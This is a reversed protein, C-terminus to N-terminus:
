ESIMKLVNNFIHVKNRERLTEVWEKELYNQYDATVPGKVDMYTEPASILKGKVTVYPHLDDAPKSAKKFVLRDVVSNSGEAYIGRDMRVLNKGDKNFERSLVKMVSDQHIKPLMKNVKDLTQKDECYIVVGKYKPAPWSYKTKNEEFFKELGIKDKAAKNWVKRSSAEFLLLGDSYEKLLNRYDSNTEKLRAKTENWCLDRVYTEIKKDLYQKATMSDKRYTLRYDRFSPLFVEQSYVNGNFEYMPETLKRYAVHLEETDDLDLLRYFPEVGSEYLKFGYKQKMRELVDGMVWDDRDSKAVKARYEDAVEEYPKNGVLDTLVVIHTTTFVHMIVYKGKEGIQRLRDSFFPPLSQASVYGEDGNRKVSATDVSYKKVMDSFKVKGANLKECLKEAFGDKYAISDDLVIHSYRVDTLHPKKDTVLVVHYGFKTKFPASIKGVETSYVANEFPYVTAFPRVIGLSGGSRKSPCDSYKMAMEEFSAGQKLKQYVENIKSFAEATDNESKGETSVLIHSAYVDYADREYAERALEEAKVSDRLYPLTLQAEYTSLENKYSPSRDIMMMKADMVKLKFDIFLQLYEDLSKKETSLSSNNKRYIYEFESKTVEELYEDGLSKITFLVPDSKQAAFLQTGLVWMLVVGIYHKM